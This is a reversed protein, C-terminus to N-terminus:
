SSRGTAAIQGRVSAEQVAAAVVTSTLTLYTAELQYRQFEAQAALSETQRRIGGFVDPVYSVTLQGTYLSYYPNGSASAPSVAGTATKNRSPSFGAQVTPFSASQEVYVTEWA